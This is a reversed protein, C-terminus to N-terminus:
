EATKDALEMARKKSALNQQYDNILPGMTKKQINRLLYQNYAANTSDTTQDRSQDQNAM